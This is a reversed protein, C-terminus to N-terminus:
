ISSHDMINKILSPAIKKIMHEYISVPIITITIKEPINSIIELIHKDKMGVVNQGNIELLQHDTLVGNRAASSDKVIANIKGNKFQFGVRGARDKYLNISRELPRDRVIVNIDNLPCEKFIKNVKDVSMGAVFTENIQLVQDGFRLGGLAAPSDKVVVSVFIGNNIASLKLGVQGKADKCLVLKRVGNTVQISPSQFPIAVTGMQAISDLEMGSFDNLLPYLSKLSQQDMASPHPPCIALHYPPPNDNEQIANFQAKALENLKLEELSPYLSM